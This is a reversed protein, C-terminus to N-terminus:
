DSDIETAHHANFNIVLKVNAKNVNKAFALIKLMFDTRVNIVLIINIVTQAIKYIVHLVILNIM